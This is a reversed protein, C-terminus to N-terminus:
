GSGPVTLDSYNSQAYFYNSFQPYSSTGENLYVRVKGTYTGSGEGVVLDKLGDDDWHVFSPVSYGFVDIDGEDDQVLEESGLNLQGVVPAVSIVLFIQVLFVTFLFWKPRNM